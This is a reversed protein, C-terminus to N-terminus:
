AVTIWTLITALDQGYNGATVQQLRTRAQGPDHGTWGHALYMPLANALLNVADRLGQEPADVVDLLDDAAAGFALSVDLDSHRLQGALQAWAPVARALRAGEHNIEAALRALAEVAADVGQTREDATFDDGSLHPTALRIRHGFLDVDVTVVGGGDSGGNDCTRWIMVKGVTPGTAWVQPHTNDALEILLDELGAAMSLRQTCLDDGIGLRTAGGGTLWQRAAQPDFRVLALTADAPSAPLLRRPDPLDPRLHHSIGALLRVAWRRCVQADNGATADRSPDRDAATLLLPATAMATALETRGAVATDELVAAALEALADATAEVVTVPDHDDVRRVDPAAQHNALRAFARCLWVMPPILGHPQFGLEQPLQWWGDHHDLKQPATGTTRFWWTFRPSQRPALRDPILQWRRTLTWGVTTLQRSNDGVTHLSRHIRRLTCTDVEVAWQEGVTHAPDLRIRGIFTGPLGAASIPTTLWLLPRYPHSL